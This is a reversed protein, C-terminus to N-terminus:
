STGGGNHGDLDEIEPRFLDLLEQVYRYTVERRVGLSGGRISRRPWLYGNFAEPNIRSPELALHRIMRGLGCFAWTPKVAGALSCYKLPALLLPGAM